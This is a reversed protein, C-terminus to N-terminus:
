RAEKRQQRQWELWDLQRQRAEWESEFCTEAPGPMPAARADVLDLNALLEKAKGDDDWVYLAIGQELLRRAEALDQPVGTGHVYCHALQYVATADNRQVGRRYWELAQDVDRATGVGLEHCWGVAGYGFLYDAKAAENYWRFAEARDPNLHFQLYCAGLRYMAGPHGGKAAATYYRIILNEPGGGMGAQEYLYGTLANAHINGMSAASQANQLSGGHRSMTPDNRNESAYYLYSAMVWQADADSALVLKQVAEALRQEESGSPRGQGKFYQEAVPVLRLAALVDGEAAAEDLLRVAERPDRRPTLWLLREAQERRQRNVARKYPPVFYNTYVSRSTVAFMAALVLVLALWLALRPRPMRRLKDTVDQV